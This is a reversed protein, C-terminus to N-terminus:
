FWYLVAVTPFGRESVRGGARWNHQWGGRVELARSARYGLSGELRTVPAEWPIPTIATTDSRVSSFDLRDLRSGFQWRPHPRYRAEVFASRASLRVGDPASSVLPLEFQSRLWEGRILWPGRGYEVDAAVVSQTSASSTGNPTLSLVSQDLWQGQAASAGISLGVPLHVTARGSWMLGDNTERVVPVAPAGRTIAASLELQGSQWTGEVGTDWTSASVLPVGPGSEYAGVPFTSLWGRTRMRTVDAMTLPLADARLSTLYQYAL